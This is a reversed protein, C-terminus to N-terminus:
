GKRGIGRGLAALLAPRDYRYISDDDLSGAEARSRIRIIEGGGSETPIEASAIIVDPAAVEGAAVVRYGASEVIPRLINNMWPDDAPIACVPMSAASSAERGHTAFLWYPDVVEVQDGGVLTVGSIEGPVGSSPSGGTLTVLDIVEGFGYALEVEGDSLRLIRLTGEGQEDGCGALPLIKSDLAIRLKGATRKVASAPVDEIREVVALSIARKVGERTRFLLAPTGPSAAAEDMEAEPTEIQKQGLVIGASSAIGSADLLLVPQGDDSLTTGAYLGAAMVAPAAPKIVLEAHDHVTDVALAYADAGAPRLVIITHDASVPNDDLGLVSALLVLPIRRGRISAMQSGGISDVRVTESRVRVIEDVASRPLAYVQGAAEVVLAPIISLTLPV